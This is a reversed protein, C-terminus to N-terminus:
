SSTQKLTILIRFQTDGIFCVVIVVQSSFINSCIKYSLSWTLRHHGLVFCIVGIFLLPPELFFIFFLIAGFQFCGLLVVDDVSKLCSPRIVFCVHFLEHLVITLIDINRPEVNHVGFYKRVLSALVAELDYLIHDLVVRVESDFSEVFIEVAGLMALRRALGEFFHKAKILLYVGPITQAESPDIIFIANHHHLLLNWDFIM